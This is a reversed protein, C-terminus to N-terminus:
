AIDQFREPATASSEPYLLAMKSTPAAVVRRLALPALVEVNDGAGLLWRLLQGTSPVRASVRLDFVSGRPEDEIRQGPELPCVGLVAAVYGRVRL